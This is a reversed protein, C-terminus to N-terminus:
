TEHSQQQTKNVFNAPMLTTIKQQDSFKELPYRSFNNVNLPLNELLYFTSVGPSSLAVAKNCPQCVHYPLYPTQLVELQVSKDMNEWFHAQSFLGRISIPYDCFTIVMHITLLPTDLMSRM